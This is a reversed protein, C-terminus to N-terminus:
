SGPGVDLSIDHRVPVGNYAAAIKSEYPQSIELGKSPTLGIRSIGIVTM